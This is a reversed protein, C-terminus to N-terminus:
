PRGFDQVWIEGVSAVGMETYSSNMLNLCHGPSAKWALLTENFSGYGAAINEAVARWNYGTKKVREGVRSGDSGRHDFFGNREMDNAHALAARELRANWTLPKTPPMYQGGCHCGKARLRNVADLMSQKEAEPLTPATYSAPKTFFGTLFFAATVAIKSVIM